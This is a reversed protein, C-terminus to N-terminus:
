DPIDYIIEGIRGFLLEAIQPVISNGLGKLRDVRHPVNKSLREIGSEWSTIECSMERMTNTHEGQQQKRQKRRYSARRASEDWWMDRLIREFTKQGESIAWSIGRQREYECLASFLIEATPVRGYRRLKKRVEEQVNKSWMKRLIECSRRKTEYSM